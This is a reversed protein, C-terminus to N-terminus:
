ESLCKDTYYRLSSVQFQKIPNVYRYVVARMGIERLYWLTFCLAVEIDKQWLFNYKIQM